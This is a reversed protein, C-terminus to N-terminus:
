QKFNQTYVIQIKIICFLIDSFINYPQFPCQYALIHLERFQHFSAHLLIRYGVWTLQQLLTAISYNRINVPKKSCLCLKFGLKTWTPNSTSLTTTTCTDM